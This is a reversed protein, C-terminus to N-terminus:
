CLSLHEPNKHSMTRKKSGSPSTGTRPIATYEAGGWSKGLGDDEESFWRDCKHNLENACPDLDFHFESDLADFLPQPTEWDDKGGIGPLRQTMRKM